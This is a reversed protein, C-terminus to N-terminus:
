KKEISKTKEIEKKGVADEVLEPYVHGVMLGMSINLRVYRTQGRELRFTLTGCASKPLRSYNFGAASKM